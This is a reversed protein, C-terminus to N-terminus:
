CVHSFLGWLLSFASIDLQYRKVHASSCRSLQKQLNGDVGGTRKSTCGQLSNLPIKGHERNCEFGERFDLFLELRTTMEM